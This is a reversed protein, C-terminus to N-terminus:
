ATMMPAAKPDNLVSLGNSMITRATAVAMASPRRACTTLPQNSFIASRRLACWAAPQRARGRASASPGQSVRETHRAQKPTSEVARAGSVRRPIAEEGASPNCGM